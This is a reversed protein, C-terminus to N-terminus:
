VTDLWKRRNAHVRMGPRLLSGTLPLDENVLELWVDVHCPQDLPCTFGLDFGSVEQRLRAVLDPSHLLHDRFMAVSEAPHDQLGSGM